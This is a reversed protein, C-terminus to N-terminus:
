PADEAPRITFTLRTVGKIGSLEPSVRFDPGVLHTDDDDDWCGADTMGDILAKVTPALNLVDRRRRDPWAVTVTVHARNLKKTRAYHAAQLAHGRLARTIEARRYHHVRENATLMQARTLDVAFASSESCACTETTHDCNLCVNM